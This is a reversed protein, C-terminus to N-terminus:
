MELTYRVLRISYHLREGQQRHSAAVSHSFDGRPNELYVPSHAACNYWTTCFSNPLRGGRDVAHTLVRPHANHIRVHPTSSPISPTSTDLVTARNRVIHRHYYQTSYQTTAVSSFSFSLVQHIALRFHFSRFVIWKPRITRRKM